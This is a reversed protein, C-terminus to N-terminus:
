TSIRPRGTQPHYSKGFVQDLHDWDVVESLKVLPHNKDIIKVLEVRFLERQKQTKIPPKKPRM